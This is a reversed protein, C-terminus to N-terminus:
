PNSLDDHRLFKENPDALGHQPHSALGPYFVRKIAPHGELRTALTMAAEQHAKM